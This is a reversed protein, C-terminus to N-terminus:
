FGDKKMAEAVKGAVEGQKSSLTNKIMAPISGKIDVDAIYTVKTNKEDIKEIIYGGLYVEGRVV